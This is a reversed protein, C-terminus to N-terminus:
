MRLLLAQLISTTLFNVLRCLWFLKSIYIDRTWKHSSTTNHFGCTGVRRLAEGCIHVRHTLMSNRQRLIWARKFADEWHVYHDEWFEQRSRVQCTIMRSTGRSSKIDGKSHSLSSDRQKHCKSKVMCSQSSIKGCFIKKRVHSAVVMSLWSTRHSTYYYESYRWSILHASLRERLNTHYIVVLKSYKQKTNLTCYFLTTANLNRVCTTHELSYTAEFTKKVKLTCISLIRTEM